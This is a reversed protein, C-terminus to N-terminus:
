YWSARPCIRKGAGPLGIARFNIREIMKFFAQQFNEVPQVKDETITREGIMLNYAGGRACSAYSGVFGAIFAVNEPEKSDISLSHQIKRLMKPSIPQLAPFVARFTARQAVNLRSHPANGRKQQVFYLLQLSEQFYGLATRGMKVMQHHQALPM